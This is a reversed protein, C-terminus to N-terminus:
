MIGKCSKGLLKQRSICIGGNENAAAIGRHWNTERSNWKESLKWCYSREKLEQHGKGHFLSVGGQCRWASQDRWYSRRLNGKSGQGWGVLTPSQSGPCSQNWGKQPEELLDTDWKASSNHVTVYLGPGHLTMEGKPLHFPFSPVLFLADNIFPYIM